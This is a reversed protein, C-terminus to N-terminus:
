HEQIYSDQLRDIYCANEESWLIEEVANVTTSALQMLDHAARIDGLKSLLLSLNQLALIWCAQSYVVKGARLATDMWDENHGQELLGDNDIDRSRLYKVANLMRPVLYNIVSALFDSTALSSGRESLSRYNTLSATDDADRMWIASYYGGPSIDQHAYNSTYKMFRDAKSSFQNWIHADSFHITGNNNDNKNIDAPLMKIVVIM